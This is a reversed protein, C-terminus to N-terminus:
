LSIKHKEAYAQATHRVSHDPLYLLSQAFQTVDTSKLTRVMQRVPGIGSPSMSFRRLGLGILVMAELPRGGVEGCVSVEVGHAQCAQVVQHILNLAAPSLLDYRDVLKPNSRDAAFFFQLLDNTGIALFDVLPLLTKLQWALAPVELMVGIRLTKPEELGLKRCFELERDVIEKSALLESVDAVMPFMVALERGAAARILARLQLQLLAPRELAVRIARWGMAPNEEEGPNVYPLHKDGGIDVARFVVPKEGAADLVERYFAEQASVRPLTSSVMFQFETRFLGIGKAGTEELSFMDAKLGANIMLDIDTGDLTVAPLHRDERYRLARAEKQAVAKEFTEITDATPHIYLEGTEADVILPDGADITDLVNHVRGIVPIGMARAVITVHATPSGEELVVARLHARDYELLDAPGLNRAVLVVDGALDTSAATAQHGSVFRILRNSLDDLDHLRELLYPDSTKQMSARYNQRVREVAAEATLGQEIARDIRDAWGRDFAFMKYTQLIDRHEGSHGVDAASMMQDIQTRMGKFADRIRRKELEVDDAVTKDITVGPQHFVADGIAVGDVLRLGKMIFPEPQAHVSRSVDMGTTEPYSALIEALVMSITQLAEVEEANFARMDRTQISLVGIVRGSRFVPVGCFSHFADEGTEARYAFKPHNGAEELNLTTRSLAITGILGEGPKLRTKHVASQNLGETAFLELSGARNVAYISCVDVQMNTAIESVVTRLRDQPDAVGGMADHLRRLLARPSSTSLRPISSQSM